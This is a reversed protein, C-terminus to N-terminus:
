RNKLVDCWHLDEQRDVDSLEELLAVALGLRRATQVTAELVRQTGWEIGRFLANHRRVMGILYYGGDAAPGIVVDLRSLLRIAEVIHRSGLAPCDTGILVAGGCADDFADTTARDLRAGLDGEGQPVYQRPGFVQAMASAGAGDVRVELEIGCDRRAEDAEALTHRVMREHLAAAGKPGLAPILRTKVRGEEPYRTFVILRYPRLILM